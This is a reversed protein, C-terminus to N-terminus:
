RGCFTFVTVLDSSTLPSDLQPASNVLCAPATGAQWDACSFNEGHSDSRLTAGCIGDGAGTVSDCDADTSCSHAATGASCTGTSNNFNLITSRYAASTFVLVAPVGPGEDGCPLALETSIEVPLGQLGLEPV